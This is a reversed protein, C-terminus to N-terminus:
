GPGAPGPWRSWNTAASCAAPWTGPWRPSKELVLAVLTRGATAPGVCVPLARDGLYKTQGVVFSGNEAARLAAIQRRVRAQADQQIMSKLDM